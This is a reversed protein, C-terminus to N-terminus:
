FCGGDVDFGDFDNCSRAVTEVLVNDVRVAGTGKGSPSRIVIVPRMFTALDSPASACVSFHRWVGPRTPAIAVATRRVDDADSGRVNELELEVITDGVLEQDVVMEASFRVSMGPEGVRGHHVGSAIDPADNGNLGLRLCQNGAFCDDATLLARPGFGEWPALTGGEFDGNPISVFQPVMPKASDARGRASFGVVCLMALGIVRNM